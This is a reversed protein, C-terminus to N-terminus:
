AIAPSNPVDTIKISKPSFLAHFISTKPPLPAGNKNVGIDGKTLLLWILVVVISPLLLMFLVVLFAFSPSKNLDYMRRGCIWAFYAAIVALLIIGLSGQYSSAHKGLVIGICFFIVLLGILGIIVAGLLTRRDIRGQYTNENSM